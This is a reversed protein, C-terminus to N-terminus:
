LCTNSFLNWLVNFLYICNKEVLCFYILRLSAPHESWGLVDAGDMCFVTPCMHQAGSFDTCSLINNAFPHNSLVRSHSHKAKRKGVGNRNM